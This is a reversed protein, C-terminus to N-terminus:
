PLVYITVKKQILEKNGNVNNEISIWYYVGGNQMDYFLKLDKLNAEKFNAIKFAEQIYEETILIDIKEESIKKMLEYDDESIDKYIMRDIVKSAKEDEIVVDYGCNTYFKEIKYEFNIVRINKDEVKEENNINIEFNEENFNTNLTKLYNIVNSIDEKDKFFIEEDIEITKPEINYNEFNEENNVLYEAFVDSTCIGFVVEREQKSSVKIIMISVLIIALIIIILFTIMLIKKKSM